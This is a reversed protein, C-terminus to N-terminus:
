HMKIFKELTKPVVRLYPLGFKKVAKASICKLELKSKEFLIKHAECTKAMGMATKGANNVFDHHAGGDLLVELMDTLLHINNNSHQFTVARHLPTDGNNNVANVNIGANLLLKVTDLCPLLGTMYDKVVVKHLLTDGHCDRPNLCCLKKLLVLVCSIKGDECYKFKAIVQVLNKTSNFLMNLKNDIESKHSENGLERRLNEQRKYELITQELLELFVQERRLSWVRQYSLLFTLKNLDSIASQNCHQAIRIAHRFLEISIYTGDNYKYYHQAVRRVSGLLEVNNTGLIRERIILSEMVIANRDGEIQVLEKLTQSEKRNQYAEVPEMPQKLLPHSPDAFREEMARKIYLFGKTASRTTPFTSTTTLSAGLLELADIREKRTCTPRNIMERVLSVKCLDSALLLPTLGQNNYLQSAGLTLLTHVVEFTNSSVAYHLATDFNNDQMDLNAGHEVLFTVVNVKFNESAIMLPTCNDNTCANVNAGNKVLCSLVDCSERYNFAAYHLATQGHKDQLDMKAGFKILFTATNVLGDKSAIMLPTCNGNACANIDAGNKVLCSLVGCSDRHYRVAYHLATEGNKDKLDMNAGHEILFTVVNQYGHKIAIMLPTYKNNTCANVAAGSEVLCSVIDFNGRAAAAFLPTCGKCLYFDEVDDDDGRGNIDAKYKLLVKVCDLNGYKVAVILSTVKTTDYANYFVSAAMTTDLACTRETSDMQQLIESLLVADGSKAAKFLKAYERNEDAM